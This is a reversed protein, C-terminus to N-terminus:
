LISFLRPSGPRLEMYTFQNYNLIQMYSDDDLMNPDLGLTQCIREYIALDSKDYEPRLIPAVIDHNRDLHHMFGGAAKRQQNGRGSSLIPSVLPPFEAYSDLSHWLFQADSDRRAFMQKPTWGAKDDGTAGEGAKYNDELLVHQFGHKMLINWRDFVKLHDDLFVLTKHPDLDGSIIKSAWDIDGFDQFASGTYYTSKNQAAASDIWRFPQGCIPKDLPDIAYIHADPSAARMFYTSQGANVGSEIISTPQIVKITLFLAYAHNIRIGCLNVKDPRAEYVLLFEDLYQLFLERTHDVFSTGKRVLEHGIEEVAIGPWDNTNAQQPQLEHKPDTASSTLDDYTGCMSTGVVISVVIASLSAAAVLSLFFRM